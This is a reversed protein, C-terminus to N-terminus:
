LMEKLKFDQVKYKTEDGTFDNICTLVLVGDVEDVEINIVCTNRIMSKPISVNIGGSMGGLSIDVPSFSHLELETDGSEVLTGLKEEYSLSKYEQEIM